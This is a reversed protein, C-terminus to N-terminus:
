RALCVRVNGRRASMHEVARIVYRSTGLRAPVAYSARREVIELGRNQSRAAVRVGLIMVWWAGVAVTRGASACASSCRFTRNLACGVRHVAVCALRGVKQSVCMSCVLERPGMWMRREHRSRMTGGGQGHAGGTRVCHRACADMSGVTRCAPFVRSASPEPVTGGREAAATSVEVGHVGVTGEEVAVSVACTACRVHRAARAAVHDAPPEGWARSPGGM